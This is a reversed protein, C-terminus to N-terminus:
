VRDVPGLQRLQDAKAPRFPSAFVALSRMTAIDDMKAVSGPPVLVARSPTISLSPANSSQRRQAVEQGNLQHQYVYIREIQDAMKSPVCREGGTGFSRPAHALPAEECTVLFICARDEIGQEVTIGATTGILQRKWLRELDM